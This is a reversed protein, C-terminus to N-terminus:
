KMPFILGVNESLGLNHGLQELFFGPLLYAADTSGGAFFNQPAVPFHGRFRIFFNFRHIFM